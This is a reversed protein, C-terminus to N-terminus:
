EGPFHGSLQKKMEELFGQRTDEWVWFKPPEGLKYSQCCYHEAKGDKWVYLPMATIEEGDTLVLAGFVTAEKSPENREGSCEYSEKFWRHFQKPNLVGEFAVRGKQDFLICAYKIQKEVKVEDAISFCALLLLSVSLVIATKM